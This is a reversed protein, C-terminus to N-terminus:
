VAYVSIPLFKRKKKKKNLNKIMIHRSLQFKLTFEFANGGEENKILKEDQNNTPNDSLKVMLNLCTM